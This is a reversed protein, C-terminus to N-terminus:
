SVMLLDRRKMEACIAKMTDVLSAEFLKYFMKKFPGLDAEARVQESVLVLSTQPDWNLTDLRWHGYMYDLNGELMRFSIQKRDIEINETTITSELTSLLVRRRDVQEVVTRPGDALIVRSKAVTPLFRYFSEYDTLVSWAVEYDVQVLGMVGYQGKEGTLLVQGQILRSQDAESLQALYLDPSLIQRSLSSM